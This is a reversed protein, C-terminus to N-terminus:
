NNVVFLFLYIYSLVRDGCLLANESTYKLCLHSFHAAVGAVGFVSVVLGWVLPELSLMVTHPFFVVFALEPTPQSIGCEFDDFLLASVARLPFPSLHFVFM